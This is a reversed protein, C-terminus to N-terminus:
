VGIFFLSVRLASISPLPTLVNRYIYPEKKNKWKNNIVLVTQGNRDAGYEKQVHSDSQHKASM